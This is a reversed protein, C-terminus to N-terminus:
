RLELFEDLTYVRVPSRDAVLGGMDQVEVWNLVGPYVVPRRRAQIDSSGEGQVWRDDAEAHDTGSTLALKQEMIEGIAIVDTSHQVSVDGGTGESTRCLRGDLGPHVVALRDVGRVFGSIKWRHGLQGSLEGTM